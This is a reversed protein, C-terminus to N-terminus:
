AGDRVGLALLRRRLLSRGRRSAERRTIGARPYDECAAPALSREGAKEDTTSWQQQGWGRYRPPALDRAFVRQSDRSSPYTLGRREDGERGPEVPGSERTDPCAVPRLNSPM